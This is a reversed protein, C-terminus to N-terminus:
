ISVKNFFEDAEVPYDTCLMFEGHMMDRLRHWFDIYNRKHLEPSVFCIDKHALLYTQVLDCDIWEDTLFCDIWVGSADDLLTPFMEYESRRSFYKLGTNRYWIMQPVSMDFTFYHNIGYRDLAEQLLSAIGDSKINLAMKNDPHNKALAFLEDVPVLDRRGIDHSIVLKGNYDRIDTEIGYSHKFSEKFAEITNQEKGFGMGRHSIINM